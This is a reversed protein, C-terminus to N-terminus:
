LTTSEIYPKHVFYNFTIHPNEDSFVYNPKNNKKKAIEIISTVIKLRFQHGHRVIVVPSLKNNGHYELLM